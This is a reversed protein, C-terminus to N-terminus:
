LTFHPQSCLCELFSSSLRDWGVMVRDCKAVTATRQALVLLTSDACAEVVTDHLLEELAAGGSASPSAANPVPDSASAVPALSPEDWLVIQVFVV